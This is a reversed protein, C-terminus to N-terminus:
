AFAQTVLVCGFSCYTDRYCVKQGDVIPSDEDVLTSYGHGCRHWVVSPAFKTVKIELVPEDDETM